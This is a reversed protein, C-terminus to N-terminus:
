WTISTPEVITAVAIIAQYAQFHGFCSDYDSHFHPIDEALHKVRRKATQSFHFAILLSREEHRHFEHTRPVPTCRPVDREDDTLDLKVRPISGRRQLPGRYGIRGPVSRKGRPNEYSSVFPVFMALPIMLAILTKM